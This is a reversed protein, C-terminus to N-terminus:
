VAVVALGVLSNSEAMAAPRSAIRSWGSSGMSWVMM